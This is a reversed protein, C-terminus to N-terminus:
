LELPTIIFSSNYYFLGVNSHEEWPDKYCVIAPCSWLHGKITRVLGLYSKLDARLLDGKTLICAKSSRIVKMMGNFTNDNPPRM